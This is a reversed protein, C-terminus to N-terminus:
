YIYQFSSASVTRRNVSGSTYNWGMESINVTNGDTSEVYVVHGTMVGIAGARPISGTSYGSARAASLWGYGGNGWYSGIDPRM